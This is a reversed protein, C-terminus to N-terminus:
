QLLKILLKMAGEAAQRKIAARNGKFQCRRCLRKNKSAIAIFTLGVPKQVSGGSPGAIGTIAIGWTTKFVRRAGSAMTLAVPESVAGHKKILSPPVKLLRAKVENHYAVVGGKFFASSGPINTLRHSLLGGSCSEAVALTKKRATLLRAIQSELLM